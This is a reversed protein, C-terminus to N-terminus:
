NNRCPDMLEYNARGTAGELVFRDTVAFMAEIETGWLDIDGSNTLQILFGTLPNNPDPVAVATQRDTFDMEYYTANFRFRGDLWESRFGLERNYLNEPPVPAPPRPNHYGACPQPPGPPPAPVCDAAQGTFTGSRFAKSSTVYVMFD